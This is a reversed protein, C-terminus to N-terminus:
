ATGNANVLVGIVMMMSRPNPNPIGAHPYKPAFSRLLVRIPANQHQLPQLRARRM